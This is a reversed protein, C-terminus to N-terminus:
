ATMVAAASGSAGCCTTASRPSPDARKRAGEIRADREDLRLLRAGLYGIVYGVANHVVVAVLLVALGVVSLWQPRVYEVLLSWYEKLRINM